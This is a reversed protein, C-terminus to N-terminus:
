QTWMHPEAQEVLSSLSKIRKFFATLIMVPLWYEWIYPYVAPGRSEDSGKNLLRSISLILSM